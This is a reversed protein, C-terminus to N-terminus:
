RGVSEKGEVENNRKMSAEAAKIGEKTSKGALNLMTCRFGSSYVWCSSDSYLEIFKQKMEGQGRCKLLALVMLRSQVLSPHSCPPPSLFFFFVSSNSYINSSTVLSLRHLTHPDCGFVYLGTCSQQQDVCFKVWNQNCVRKNNRSGQM